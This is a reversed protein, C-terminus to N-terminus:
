LLVSCSRDFRTLIPLDFANGNYAVLLMDASYVNPSKLNQEAKTKAAAAVSDDGLFKDRYAEVLAREMTAAAHPDTQLLSLMAQAFTEPGVDGDAPPPLKAHEYM